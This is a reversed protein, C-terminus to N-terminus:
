KKKSRIKDWAIQPAIQDVRKKKLGKKIYFKYSANFIKMWNRQKKIPLKKVAEPLEKVNVYPSGVLKMTSM